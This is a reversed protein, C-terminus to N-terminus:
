AQPGGNDLGTRLLDWAVHRAQAATEHMLRQVPPIPNPDPARGEAVAVHVDEAVRIAMLVAANV